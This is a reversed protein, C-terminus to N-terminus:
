FWLLKKKAQCALRIKKHVLLNPYPTVDTENEMNRTSVSNTYPLFPSDDNDGFDMVLLCWKSMVSMHYEPDKGRPM